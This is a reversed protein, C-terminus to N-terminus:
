WRQRVQKVKSRFTDRTIGFDFCQSRLNFSRCARSLPESMGYNTRHYATHLLQHTRLRRSHPVNLSIMSLLKESKIKGTLLDFILLVAFDARRYELPELDILRCRDTYPPLYTPDTWPLRRLAYRVFKKQISEIRKSHVSYHPDWLTCCYELLSRVLSCYVSKLAYPDSLEEGTRMVFGLMSFAKAIIYDIHTVFSIKTDFIIGLDKIELKRTLGQDKIKYDFIIPNRLRHYTVLCCKSINLFLNNALCWNSLHNLDYQLEQADLLSSVATYIKLDDAYMLCQCKIFNACIDNIFLIFLLPGLHSGQPVGSKVIFSRSRFKGLKIFQSRGTLYSNIWSLLSSHIGIDELKRLLISHQVRDFAKSFDTYIVDVQKSSEIAGLAFNTFELLNSCTSCGKRFGHQSVSIWPEILPTLIDTLIAEFLKAVTPLISIGRYNSINKRSGSKFIPVIHSIKWFQPFVGVSLSLNFIYLLPQCLTSACNKMLSPPIDDPGPGKDVDINLLKAM